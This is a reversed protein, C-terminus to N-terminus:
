PIVMSDMKSTIVIKALRKTTAIIKSAWFYNKALASLKSHKCCELSKRKHILESTFNNLYSQSSYGVRGRDITYRM